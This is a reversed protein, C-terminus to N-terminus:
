CCRFRTTGRFIFRKWCRCLGCRGLQRCFDAKYSRNRIHAVYRPHGTLGFVTQEIRRYFSSSNPISVILVGGPQLLANAQTLLQAMNDMYELLSSMLISDQQGYGSPNAFPLSQCVFQVAASTKKQDCLAIMATSGDIGMVSCGKKAVYHSFIGSGCGLDLVRSNPTIYRDLLRTWIYFRERFASSSEYRRAFQPAIADHFDVAANGTSRTKENLKPRQVVNSYFQEWRIVTATSNYQRRALNAARNRYDTYEGEPMTLYTEIAQRLSEPDNRVWHGAQESELVQWPTGTAAIVPTGQAMSEIVVNGFNESHSPLITVLADAYLQEKYIGSVAGPFDVNEVLNLKKVQKRLNRAYGEDDVPGAIRLLYNRERFLSSASVALLLQDIAKIPHLRGIFLLYPREPIGPTRQAPLDLSNPIETIRADPGFESRIDTVEAACTAHFHIGSRFRKFLWLLVRKVNPRIRLAVPSLEGHPAWVLPKRAIKSLVVWVFSAPYFLSNVHVVDAKQIARWGYWIQNVPWYFHLNRTYIVQGCDMMLWTNLEIDAPLHASTAVVAVNHGARTLAKAQWYISQSPGGMQAPYFCDASLVINM